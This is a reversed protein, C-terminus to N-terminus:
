ESPAETEPAYRSVSLAVKAAFEGFLISMGEVLTEYREDKLGRQLNESGQLLVSGTRPELLTWHAELHVWGGPTGDFRLVNIELLAHSEDQAPNPYLTIRAKPLARSLIVGATRTLTVELPEIWRDFEAVRLQQSDGVRTVIQPRNLYDPVRVRRIVIDFDNTTATGTAIAPRTIQYFRPPPTSRCGAALIALTLAAPLLPPVRHTLSAM